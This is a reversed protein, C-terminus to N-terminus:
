MDRRWRVGRGLLGGEYSQPAAGRTMPSGHAPDPATRRVAIPGTAPGTKTQNTPPPAGRPGLSTVFFVGRPTPDRPPRARQWSKPTRNAGRAQPSPTAAHPLCPPLLPAYVLVLCSRPPRAAPWGPLPGPLEPPAASMARNKRARPWQRPRATTQTAGLARSSPRV